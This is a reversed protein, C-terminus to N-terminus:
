CDANMMETNMMQLAATVVRDGSIREMCRHDLPCLKLQCPGCDVDERIVITKDLNANTYRPDNPGMICIVRRDFAVGYHRVGSDTCILLDCRRAAAKLQHLDLPAEVPLIVPTKCYKVIEEAIPLEGPGFHILTKIDKKKSLDDIVAAFKEPKWLKSSGFSAGPAVLLLRDRPAVGKTLLWANFSQITTDDVELKPRISKVEIGALSLIENWYYPMPNPIRKMGNMKALARDTLLFGRGNASYGFRRPIRALAAVFATEFSNPFLIAADFQQKRLDAALARLPGFKLKQPHYHLSDYYKAGQLIPALNPRLSLTIKANPFADRIAQFHASAMVMDGVWNPCRVFIREAAFTPTM